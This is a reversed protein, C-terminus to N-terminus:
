RAHSRALRLEMLAIDLREDRDRRRAIDAQDARRMADNAITQASAFAHLATDSAMRAEAALMALRDAEDRAHTAIGAWGAVQAPDLRDSTLAQSWGRELADLTARQTHEVESALESERLLPAAEAGRRERQLERIRAIERLTVAPHRSTM